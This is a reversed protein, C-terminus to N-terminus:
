EENDNFYLESYCYSHLEDGGYLRVHYITKHAECNVQMVIGAAGSYEGAIVMAERGVMDDASPFQNMYSQVSAVCVFENNIFVNLGYDEEKTVIAEGNIHEALAPHQYRLGNFIIGDARIGV